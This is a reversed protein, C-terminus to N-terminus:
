AALSTASRALIIKMADFARVETKSVNVVGGIAPHQSSRNFGGQSGQDSHHLLADAKGRRWSVFRASM